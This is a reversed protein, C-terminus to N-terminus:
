TIVVRLSNRTSCVIMAMVISTNLKNLCVNLKLQIVIVMYDTIISAFSYDIFDEQYM